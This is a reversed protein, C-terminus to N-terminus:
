LTGCLLTPLRFDNASIWRVNYEAILIGKVIAFGRGNVLEDRLEQLVPGLTPLPFDDLTLNHMEEEAVDKHLDVAARIERLHQESLQVLWETSNRFQESYWASPGTFPQFLQTQKTNVMVKCYTDCIPHPIGGLSTARHLNKREDPIAVYRHM